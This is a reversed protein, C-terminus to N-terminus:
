KMDYELLLIDERVRSIQHMCDKKEQIWKKYVKNKKSGIYLNIKLRLIRVKKNLEKLNYKMSYMKSAQIELRKQHGTTRHVSLVVVWLLLFYLVIVSLAFYVIHMMYFFIYEIISM